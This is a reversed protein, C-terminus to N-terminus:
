EPSRVAALAAQLNAVLTNASAVMPMIVLAEMASAAALAGRLDDAAVQASSLANGLRIVFPGDLKPPPGPNAEKWARVTRLCDMGFGPIRLLASDSWTRVDEMFYINQGILCNIARASLPPKADRIPTKTEM